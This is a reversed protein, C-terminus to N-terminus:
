TTAIRNRSVPEFKLPSPARKPFWQDVPSRYRARHRPLPTSRSIKGSFDRCVVTGVSGSVFAASGTAWTVGFETAKSREGTAVTLRRKSPRSTTLEKSVRGVRCVGGWRGLRGIENLPCIATCQVCRFEENAGDAKGSGNSRVGLSSKSNRGRDRHLVKQLNTARHKSLPQTTPVDNKNCSTSNNNNNNDTSGVFRRHRGLFKGEYASNQFAM